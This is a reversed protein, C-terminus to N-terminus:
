VGNRASEEVMGRSQRVGWGKRGVGQLYSKSVCTHGPAEELVRSPDVPVRRPQSAGHLGM